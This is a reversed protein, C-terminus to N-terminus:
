LRHIGWTYHMREGIAFGHLVPKAEAAGKGLRRGHV